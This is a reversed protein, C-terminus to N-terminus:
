DRIRRRRRLRHHWCKKMETVFHRYHGVTIKKGQRFHPWIDRKEELALIMSRVNHLKDATSIGKTEHTGELVTNIYSEKRELWPLKKDESVSAVLGSIRSGFMQEIDGITRETDEVVDHLVGAAVVDESFGARLLVCGVSAPHYFYPIAPDTKRMQNKHAEAGFRLARDIVSSYFTKTAKKM